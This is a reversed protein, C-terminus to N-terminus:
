GGDRKRAGEEGDAPRDKGGRGAADRKGGVGVGGGSGGWGCGVVCAWLASWWLVRWPTSGHGLGLLDRRRCSCAGDCVIWVGLALFVCCEPMDANAYIHKPANRRMGLQDCKHQSLKVRIADGGAVIHAFTLQEINITRCGINWDFRRDAGNVTVDDTRPLSSTRPCLCAPAPARDAPCTPTPQPLHLSGSYSASSRESTTRRRAKPAPDHARQVGRATGNGCREAFPWGCPCRCPMRALAKSMMATAALQRM